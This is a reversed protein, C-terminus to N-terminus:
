KKFDMEWAQGDMMFDPTKAKPTNSPPILEVNHGLNTFFVVTNNEHKELSVGNPIIKGFKREKNKDFYQVSGIGTNQGFRKHKRM